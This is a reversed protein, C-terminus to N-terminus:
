LRSVAVTATLNQAATNLDNTVTNDITTLLNTLTNQVDLLEQLLTQNLPGFAAIANQLSANLARQITGLQVSIAAAIATENVTGNIGAIAM